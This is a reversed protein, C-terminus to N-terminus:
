LIQQRPSLNTFTGVGNTRVALQLWYPSGNFVGSGFDLTVNFLGNTVPTASNTVAAVAAGGSSTTFLTFALDYSGNAPGSSSSLQGEYTFATGQACLTSPLLIRTLLALFTLAVLPNRIFTKMQQNPKNPKNPTNM